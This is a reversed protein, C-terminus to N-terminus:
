AAVTTSRAIDMPGGSKNCAGMERSQSWSIKMDDRLWTSGKGRMVQDIQPGIVRYIEAWCDRGRDGLASPHREPGMTQRYADNYFQILDPGWWIFMPHQSTLM